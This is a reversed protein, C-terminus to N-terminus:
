CSQVAAVRSLCLCCGSRRESSPLAFVVAQGGADVCLLTDLVVSTVTTFSDIVLAVATRAFASGRLLAAARPGCARGSGSASGRSPARRRCCCCCLSGGALLLPRTVAYVLALEALALFPLSLRFAVLSYPTLPLVCKRWWSCFPTRLDSLPLLAPLLWQYLFSLM